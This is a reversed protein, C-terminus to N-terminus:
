PLREMHLPPTLGLNSPALLGVRVPADTEAMLTALIGGPITTATCNGTVGSKSSHYVVQQFVATDLRVRWEPANGYSFPIRPPALPGILYASGSCDTTTFYKTQASPGYLHQALNPQATEPDLFWFLGGSDVVMLRDGLGTIVGAADKWVISGSGTGPVGPPGDPGRAGVPGAPGVDGVPGRPGPEGQCAWVLVAVLIVVNKM